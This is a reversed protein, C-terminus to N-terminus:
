NQPVFHDIANVTKFDLKKQILYCGGSRGVVKDWQPIFEDDVALGISSFFEYIEKSNYSNIFLIHNIVVNAEDNIIELRLRAVPSSSRTATASLMECACNLVKFEYYGGRILNFDNKRKITPSFVNNKETEKPPEPATADLWELEDEFDNEHYYMLPGYGKMLIKTPQSFQLSCHM